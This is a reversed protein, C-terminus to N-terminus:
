TMHAALMYEEVKVCRTRQMLLSITAVFSPLDVNRLYRQLLRM